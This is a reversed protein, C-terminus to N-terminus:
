LRTGEVVNAAVLVDQVSRIQRAEYELLADVLRQFPLSVPSLPASSVIAEFESSLEAFLVAMREAESTLSRSAKLLSHLEHRLQSQKASTDVAFLSNAMIWVDSAVRVDMFSSLFYSSITSLLWSTLLNDRQDFISASPNTVITGDSSQVFRPPAM